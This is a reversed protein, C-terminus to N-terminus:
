RERRRRERKAPRECAPPKQKEDRHHERCAVCNGHRSCKTRKCPCDPNRLRCEMPTFRIGDTVQEPAEYQQFVTWALALGADFEETTLERFEM